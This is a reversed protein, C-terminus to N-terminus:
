EKNKIMVMKDMQCQLQVLGLKGLVTITEQNVSHRTMAPIAAADLLSM